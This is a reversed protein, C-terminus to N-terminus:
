DNNNNAKLTKIRAELSLLESLRSPYFLRRRQDANKANDIKVLAESYLGASALMVAGKLYLDVSPQHVVAKDIASAAEGLNGRRAYYDSKLSYYQAARKSNATEVGTKEAIVFIDTMNFKKSLEQNACEIGGEYTSSDALSRIEETAGFDFKRADQLFSVANKVDVDLGSECIVNLKKLVLGLSNPNLTLARDIHEVTNEPFGMNELYEGYFVKARASLPEDMEWKLLLTGSRAWTSSLLLTNFLIFILLGVPVASALFKSELKSRLYNLFGVFCIILGIGPLYNRHEFYLELPLVTSEMLHFSFFWILGLVQVYFKKIFSIVLAIILSLSVLYTIIIHLSLEIKGASEYYGRFLNLDSLNPAIIKLSYDGIASVQYFLREWVTFERHVYGAGWIPYSFYLGMAILLFAGTFVGWSLRAGLYDSPRRFWFGELLLVFPVILAANEKSFVGLLVFIFSFLAFVVVKGRGQSFSERAALYFYLSILVFLASLIAMRQIVYLVTSVNIPHLVWFATVTISFWFIQNENYSEFTRFLKRLVLFLVIGSLMHFLLNTLKFKWPDSPWANDNLLFSAMSIPRGTPGSGNGFVFKKASEADNVGGFYGMPELNPYDDFLFPGQLGPWYVAFAGLFISLFLVARFLSQKNM